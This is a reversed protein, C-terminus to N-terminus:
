GLSFGAVIEEKDTRVSFPISVGPGFQMVYDYWSEGNVQRVGKYVAATAQGYPSLEAAFKSGTTTFRERLHSSFHAYRTGGQLERFADRVTQTKKEDEGSTSTM